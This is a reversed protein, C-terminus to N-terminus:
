ATWGSRGGGPEPGARRVRCSRHLRPPIGGRRRGRLIDAAARADGGDPPPRRPGTAERIVVHM